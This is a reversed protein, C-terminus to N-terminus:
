FPFPSELLLTKTDKAQVSAFSILSILTALHHSIFEPCKLGVGEGRTEERRLAMRLLKQIPTRTPLTRDREAGERGGRM